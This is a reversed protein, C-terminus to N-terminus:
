PYPYQFRESHSLTVSCTDAGGCLAKKGIYSAPKLDLTTNYSYYKIPYNINATTCIGDPNAGGGCLVKVNGITHGSVTTQLGAVWASTSTPDSPPNYQVYQGFARLAESASIYQFSAIALDAAPLLLVLLLFSFVLLMEFAVAGRRDARLSGKHRGLAEHTRSREIAGARSM